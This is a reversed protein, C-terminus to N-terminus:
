KKYLFKVKMLKYGSYQAYQNLINMATDKDTKKCEVEFSLAKPKESILCELNIQQKADPNVYAIMFSPVDGDKVMVWPLDYGQFSIKEMTKRLKLEKM